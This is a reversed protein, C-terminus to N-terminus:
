NVRIESSTYAASYFLGLGGIINSPVNAPNRGYLGGQSPTDKLAKLYNFAPKDLTYLRIIVLDGKQLHTDDSEDNRWHGFMAEVDGLGQLFRDDFIQLDMATKQQRVGNIFHESKFYNEQPNLDHLTAYLYYGKQKEQHDEEVLEIRIKKLQASDPMTSQSTLLTGNHNVSLFYTTGPIGRFDVPAQYYGARVEEFLIVQNSDDKVSVFANTVPLPTSGSFYSTTNSLQVYSEGAKNVIVGEVSIQSQEPGPNITIVEECSLLTLALFGISLIFINKM